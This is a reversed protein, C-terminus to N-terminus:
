RTWEARTAAVDAMTGRTTNMVGTDWWEFLLFAAEGADKWPLRDVEALTGRDRAIVHEADFCITQADAYKLIFEKVTEPIDM